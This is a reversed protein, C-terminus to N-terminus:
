DATDTVMVQVKDCSFRDYLRMLVVLCLSVQAGLCALFRSIESIM